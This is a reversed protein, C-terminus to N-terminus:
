QARGYHMSPLSMLSVLHITSPDGAERGVILTPKILLISTLHGEKQRDLLHYADGSGKGRKVSEETSVTYGEYKVLYRLLSDGRECILGLTFNCSTEADIACATIPSGFCRGDLVDLFKLFTRRLAYSILFLRFTTEYFRLV